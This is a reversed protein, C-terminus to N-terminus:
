MASAIKRRRERRFLLRLLNYPGSAFLAQDVRVLLTGDNRFGCLQAASDSDVPGPRVARWAAGAAPREFVQAAYRGKNAATVWEGPATSLLVRGPRRPDAVISFVNGHALSREGTFNERSWARQRRDWRWLGGPGGDARVPMGVFVSDPTAAVPLGEGLVVARAGPPRKPLTPPYLGEVLQVHPSADGDKIAVVSRGPPPGEAADPDFRSPKIAVLVVQVDSAPAGAWFGPELAESARAGAQWQAVAELATNRLPEIAIGGARKRVVSGAAVHLLRGAPLYGTNDIWARQEPKGLADPYVAVYSAFSPNELTGRGHTERAALLLKDDVVDCFEIAAATAIGAPRGLSRRHEFPLLLSTLAVLLIVSALAALRRRRRRRDWPILSRLDEDAIAAVARLLEDRAAPRLWGLRWAGRADVYRHEALAPPLAEAPDGDVLVPIIPREDNQQLFLEIEQRVWDAHVARPSCCVVLARSRALAAGLEADLQAARIDTDDRFVRLRRRPAGRARPLRVTELFHQLRRAQVKDAHSYSIFADFRESESAASEKIPQAPSVM